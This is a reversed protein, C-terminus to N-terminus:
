WPRSPRERVEPSPDVLGAVLSERAASADPGSDKSLRDLVRVAAVRAREIPDHLLLLALYSCCTGNAPWYSTLPWCRPPWVPRWGCRTQM